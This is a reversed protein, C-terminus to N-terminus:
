ITKFVIPLLSYPHNHSLIISSSGELIPPKFVERPHVLSADLTGVTIEVVSQVRHKTDLCAVVFREQDSAIVQKWYRKFFEIADPSSSIRPRESLSKEYILSVRKVSAFQDIQPLADPQFAPLAEDAFSFHKQRDREYNTVRNPGQNRGNTLEM